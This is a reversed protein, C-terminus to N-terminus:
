DNSIRTARILSKDVKNAPTSKTGYLYYNTVEKATLYTM